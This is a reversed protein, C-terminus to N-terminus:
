HVTPMELSPYENMAQKWFAYSNIFHSVPPGMGQLYSIESGELTVDGQSLRITQVLNKIGDLYADALQADSTPQYDDFDVHTKGEAIWEDAQQRCLAAYKEAREIAREGMGLAIGRSFTLRM